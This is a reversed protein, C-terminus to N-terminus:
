KQSTWFLSRDFEIAGVSNRLFKPEMQQKDLKWFEDINFWSYFEKNKWRSNIRACADDFENYFPKDLDIDQRAEEMWAHAVWPAWRAVHEAESITRRISWNVYGQVEYSVKEKKM